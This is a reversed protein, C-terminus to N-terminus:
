TKIFLITEYRVNCSILNNTMSVADDVLFLNIFGNFDLYMQEKNKIAFYRHCNYSVNRHACGIESIDRRKSKEWDNKHLYSRANLHMHM